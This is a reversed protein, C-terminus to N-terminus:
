CKIRKEKSIVEGVWRGLNIVMVLEQLDLAEIWPGWGIFRVGIKPSPDGEGFILPLEM